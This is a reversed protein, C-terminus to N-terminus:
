GHILLLPTNVNLANKHVWDVTEFLQAASCPTTKIDTLPDSKIRAVEKPYQSLNNIDLRVKIAMKPAIRSLMLVFRRFASPLVEFTLGPVVTITGAVEDPYDLCFERVYLGAVTLWLAFVPEWCGNKKIYEIFGRIDQRIDETSEIHFPDGQSRDHVRQDLGYLSYGQEVIYRV